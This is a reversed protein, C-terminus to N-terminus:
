LFLYYSQNNTKVFCSFYVSQFQIFALQVFRRNSKSAAWNANLHSTIQYSLHFMHSNNSDILVFSAWPLFKVFVRMYVCVYPCVRIPVCTHSCVYLCEWMYDCVLITVCTYLGVCVYVVYLYVRKRIILSSLLSNDPITVNM